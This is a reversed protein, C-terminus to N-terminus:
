GVLHQEMKTQAAATQIEELSRDDVSVMAAQQDDNFYIPHHKLLCQQWEHEKIVCWARCVAGVSTLGKQRQLADPAPAACVCVPMICGSATMTDSQEYFIGSAIHPVKVTCSCGALQKIGLATQNLYLLCM